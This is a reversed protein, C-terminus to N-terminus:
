RGPVVVSGELLDGAGRAAGATIDVVGAPIEYELFIGTDGGEVKWALL